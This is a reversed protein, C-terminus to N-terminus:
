SSQNQQGCHCCFWDDQASDDISFFTLVFCEVQLSNRKCFIWNNAKPKVVATGDVIAKGKYM